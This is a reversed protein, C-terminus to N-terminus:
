HRIQAPGATPAAADELVLDDLVGYDKYMDWISKMLLFGPSPGPAGGLSTVEREWQARMLQLGHFGDIRACGMSWNRFHRECDVECAYLRVIDGHRPDAEIKRMLAEVKEREGELCQVFVEGSYLLVGSIGAQANHERARYMLAALRLGDFPMQPRSAYVLQYIPM